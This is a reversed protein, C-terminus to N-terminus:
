RFVLHDPSQLESTHDESRNSPHVLASSIFCHHTGFDMPMTSSEQSCSTRTPPAYRKTNRWPAEPDIANWPFYRSTTGGERRTQVFSSLASPETVVSVKSSFPPLVSSTM